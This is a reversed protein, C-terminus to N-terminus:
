ARSHCCCRTAPEHPHTTSPSLCRTTTPPLLTWHAAALILTNFVEGCAGQTRAYRMHSKHRHVLPHGPHTGVGGGHAEPTPIPVRGVEDVWASRGCAYTHICPAQTAVQRHQQRSTSSGERSQGGGGTSSSHRSGAGGGEKPRCSARAMSSSRLSCPWSMLARTPPPDLPFPALRLSPPPPPLLNLPTCVHAHQPPLHIAPCTFILSAGHICPTPHPTSPQMPRHVPWTPSTHQPTHQGPSPRASHEGVGWTGQWAQVYTHCVLTFRQRPKNLCKKKSM